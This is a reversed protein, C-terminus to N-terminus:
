IKQKADVAQKIAKQSPVFYENDDSLSNALGLFKQPM